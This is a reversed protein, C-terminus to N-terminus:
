RIDFRGAFTFAYMLEITHFRVKAFTLYEEGHELDAGRSEQLYEDAQKDDNSRRM